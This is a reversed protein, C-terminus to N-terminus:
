RNKLQDLLYSAVFRYGLSTEKLLRPFYLARPSLHGRSVGKKCFVLWRELLTHSFAPEPFYGAQDNLSKLRCLWEEGRVFVDTVSDCCCTSIAQHIEMEEPSPEIGLARLQRLRVKGATGRQGSAAVQTIQGPHVRYQLLVEPLNALDCHRSAREWLDFDEANKFAADYYLAHDLFLQRRLLVTPHGMMSDFLLGCRISDPDTSWRLTKEQGGFKRFWTGCIGVSPNRELFAVQKALREPLSVDDADMRAVFDGRALELGKNLTFILGSNKENHVLRIRPDDFSEVIAVSGDSSGDNIVLLEFDAYTQRLISDIAERLHAQSNYVPLLVTVRPQIKM